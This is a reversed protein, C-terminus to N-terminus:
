SYGSNQAAMASNQMTRPPPRQDSSAFSPRSSQVGDPRTVRRLTLNIRGGGPVLPGTGPLIRDVGHYALRAAGALAVVDGSALEIRRTPGRREPGGIRFIATDGLSISLVPAELAEEDEDRHLGMRAGPRYLNVLCAEPPDPWGAYREWLRYLLEPMEPWPEGTDPHHPQYRYGARDSVWGLPGLNCMRVSFPRGSRPMTPTFWGAREVRDLVDRLLSRQTEPDLARPWHRFGEPPIAVGSGSGGARDAQGRRMAPIHRCRM